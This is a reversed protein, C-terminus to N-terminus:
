RGPEGRHLDCAGLALELARRALRSEGREDDMAAWRSEVYPAPVPVEQGLAITASYVSVDMRLHSLVHEFGGVHRPRAAGLMRALRAAVAAPAGGFAEAMPPEWLGAFRGSDPRKLLFVEGAPRQLVLYLLRHPRAETRAALRPYRTPDGGALAACEARWPCETCAPAKPTCVTAGLEMLAQNFDGPQAPDLLTDARAWLARKGAAKRPDDEQAVLRCLVREVNGDVLPAPTGFAISAIAGSTYAGVGPIALLAPVEAPFTGGLQEAVHKAGAHLMRARRYYGLGSWASLVDDLPAEALAFVDPFRQLFRQYYPIVTAVRTQQLMIESLWIGYADTRRRWPLDRKKTSYWSLLRKRLRAVQASELPHLAEM